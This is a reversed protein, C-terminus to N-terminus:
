GMLSREPTEPRKLLRIHCKSKSHLYKRWKKVAINRSRNFPEGNLFVERIGYWITREAKKSREKEGGDTGFPAAAAAAVKITLVFRYATQKGCMLWWGAAKLTFLTHEILSFLVLSCCLAHHTCRGELLCCRSQFCFAQQGQVCTSNKSISLWQLQLSIDQVASGFVAEVEWQFSDVNRWLQHLSPAFM